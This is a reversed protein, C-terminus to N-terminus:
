GADDQADKLKQPIHLIHRHLLMDCRPLSELRLQYESQLEPHALLRHTYRAAAAAAVFGGPTGRRRRRPATGLLLRAALRGTLSYTPFDSKHEFNYYVYLIHIWAINKWTIPCHNQRDVVYTTPYIYM